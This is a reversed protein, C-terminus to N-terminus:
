ITALVWTKFMEKPMLGTDQDLLVGNKFIKFAPVSHVGYAEATVFNADVDLKAIVVQGSLEDAIEELLPAMALCPGCWSAWFDVVVPLSAEMVEEEFSADTVTLTPMRM